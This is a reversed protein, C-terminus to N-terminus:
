PSKWKDPWNEFDARLKIRLSVRGDDDRLAVIQPGSRDDRIARELADAMADRFDRTLEQGSEFLEALIARREQETLPADLDSVACIARDNLDTMEGWLLFAGPASAGSAQNIASRPSSPTSEM